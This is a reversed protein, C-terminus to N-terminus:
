QRCCFARCFIVHWFVLPLLSSILTRKSVRFCVVRYYRGSYGSYRDEGVLVGNEAEMKFILWCWTRTSETILSWKALTSYEPSAFFGLKFFWGVGDMWDLLACLLACPVLCMSYNSGYKVQCLLCCALKKWIRSSRLHYPLVSLVNICLVCLIDGESACYFRPRLTVLHGASLLWALKPCSSRRLASTPWRSRLTM